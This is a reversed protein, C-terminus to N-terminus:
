PGPQRAGNARQSEVTNMWGDIMMPLAVFLDTRVAAHSWGSRIIPLTKIDSGFGILYIIPDSQTLNFGHM